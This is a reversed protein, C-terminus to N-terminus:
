PCVGNPCDDIFSYSLGYSWSSGDPATQPQYISSVPAIIMSTLGMVEHLPSLYSWGSSVPTLRPTPSTTCNVDYTLEVVWGSYWNFQRGLGAAELAFFDGAPRGFPHYGSATCTGGTDVCWDYHDYIEVPIRVQIRSYEATTWNAQITSELNTRVTFGGTAIYWGEYGLNDILNPPLVENLIELVNEWADGSRDAHWYNNGRVGSLNFGILQQFASTDGLQCSSCISTSLVRAVVPSVVDEVLLHFDEPFVHPSIWLDDASTLYNDLLRGALGFGSDGTLLNLALAGAAFVRLEGYIEALCRAKELLNGNYQDCQLLGLPDTLYITSNAFEDPQQVAIAIGVAIRDVKHIV